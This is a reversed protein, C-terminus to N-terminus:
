RVRAENKPLWPMKSNLILYEIRINKLDLQSENSLEIEYDEKWTEGVVGSGYNDWKSKNELNNIFRAKIVDNRLTEKRGM